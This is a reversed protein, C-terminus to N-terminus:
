RRLDRPASEPEGGPTSTSQDTPTSARVQSRASIMTSLGSTSEDGPASAAALRRLQHIYRVTSLEASGTRYNNATPTAIGTRDDGEKKFITAGDAVFRM